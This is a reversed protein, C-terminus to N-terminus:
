SLEFGECTIYCTYYCVIILSSIDTYHTHTHTHTVLVFHNWISPDLDLHMNNKLPPSEWLINTPSERKYDERRCICMHFDGVGQCKFCHKTHVQLHVFTKPTEIYEGFWASTRILGSHNNGHYRASIDMWRRRQNLYSHATLIYFYFFGLSFM